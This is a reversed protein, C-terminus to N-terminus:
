TNKSDGYIAVLGPRRTLALARQLPVSIIANCTPSEILRPARCPRNFMLFGRWIAPSDINQQRVKCKRVLSFPLSLPPCVCLKRPALTVWDTINPEIGAAHLNAHACKERLEDHTLLRVEQSNKCVVATM